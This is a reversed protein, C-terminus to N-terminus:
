SLGIETLIDEEFASLLEMVMKIQHYLVIYGDIINSGAPRYDGEYEALMKSVLDSLKDSGATTHQASLIAESYDFDNIVRVINLCNVQINEFCRLDVNKILDSIEGHLSALANFYGDIAPRMYGETMLRTPKYLDRMDNLTFSPSYSQEKSDIPQSVQTACIRYREIIPRLLTFHGVLRSRESEIYARAEKEGQKERIFDSRASAIANLFLGILIVGLLSQIATVIRGLEGRPVIDGYGLTTITVTSFYLCEIYSRGSGIILPFFYYVTAFVPILLLYLFGYTQPNRQFIKSPIFM